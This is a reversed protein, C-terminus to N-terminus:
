YFKTQNTLIKVLELVAKLGVVTFIMAFFAVIVLGLFQNVTISDSMNLLDNLGFFTLFDSLTTSM